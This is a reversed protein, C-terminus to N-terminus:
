SAFLRNLLSDLTVAGLLGVSRDVVAVLPCGTRSMMGAIELATARASVVPLEHTRKTLCEGVTRVGVESVFLDAHREDIVRASAASEHVHSPVVLGLVATGSLVAAPLGQDDVVILGPLRQEALLRAAEVAPVRMDVMPFERALDQAHM